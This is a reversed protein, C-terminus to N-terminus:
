QHLLEAERDVIDDLGGLLRQLGGLLEMGVVSCGGVSGSVTWDVVELLDVLELRDNMWSPCM